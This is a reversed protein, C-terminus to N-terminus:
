NKSIKGVQNNLFDKQCDQGKSTKESREQGLIKLFDKQWDQGLLTKELRERWIYGGNNNLSKENDNFIM